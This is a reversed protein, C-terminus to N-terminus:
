KVQSVYDIIIFHPRNRSCLGINLPRKFQAATIISINRDKAIQQLRQIYETRKNYMNDQNVSTIPQEM